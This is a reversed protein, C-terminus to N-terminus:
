LANPSEDLVDSQQQLLAKFSSATGASIARKENVIDAIRTMPVRLDM